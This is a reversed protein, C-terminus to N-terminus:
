EAPPFVLDAVHMLIVKLQAQTEAPDEDVLEFMRVLWDQTAVWGYALAVSAAVVIRPDMADPSHPRTTGRAGDARALALLMEGTKVRDELPAYELDDMAARVISRTSVRRTLVDDFLLPMVERYDPHADIIKHRSPAGREIVAALIDSKTGVYQHVLPHTVGAREAIERVTVKGPDRRSFLDEAADLIAATTEDRSQRARPEVASASGNEDAQTQVRQPSSGGQTTKIVTTDKGDM